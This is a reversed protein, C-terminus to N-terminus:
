GKNRRKGGRKGGASDEVGLGLAALEKGDEVHGNLHQGVRNAGIFEEAREKGANRAEASEEDGDPEPEPEPTPVTPTDLRAVSEALDAADLAATTASGVITPAVLPQPVPYANRREVPREGAAPEARRELEAAPSEDRVGTVDETARRLDAFAQATQWMAARVQGVLQVASAFTPAPAPIPEQGLAARVENAAQRLAGVAASADRTISRIMSKLTMM